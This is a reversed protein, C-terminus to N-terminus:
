LVGDSAGRFYFPFTLEVTPTLEGRFRPFSAEHKVAKAVCEGTPTKDHPPLASVSQVSGSRAIVVRVWLAGTVQELSQCRAVQKKVREMGAELDHRSPQEPLDNPGAAVPAPPTDEATEDDPTRAGADAAAAARVPHPPRLTRVRPTPGPALQWWAALVVGAGLVAILAARTWPVHAMRM